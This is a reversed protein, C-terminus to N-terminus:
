EVNWVNVRTREQTPEKVYVLTLHQSQRRECEICKYPQEGTYYSLHSTFHQSQSFSKGCGVCIYSEETHNRQHRHLSGNRSYSKGCEMCKYPKEGTHTSQHTTLISKQGFSKGCELCKYPKEGTHTRQHRKLSGSRNFSIGCEMCQYPKEGTHTRLHATLTGSDSFSKECEVCKYPKEGTHIISHRSFDSKYRFIKGCVPCKIGRKRQYEEQPILVEHVDEGPSPPSKKKGNKSQNGKHRKPRRQNGFTEKGVEEKTTDLSIECPERDTESDQEDGMSSMTGYNELM